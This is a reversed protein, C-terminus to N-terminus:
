PQPLQAFCRGLDFNRFALDYSLAVSSALWFVFNNSGLRFGIPFILSSSDQPAKVGLGLILISWNITGDVTTKLDTDFEKMLLIIATSLGGVSWGAEAAFLSVTIFAMISRGARGVSPIMPIM